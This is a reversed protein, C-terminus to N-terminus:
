SAAAAAKEMQEAIWDVDDPNALFDQFLKWLGQGTTAGFEPPVLDSLDWRLVEASGIARLGRRSSM